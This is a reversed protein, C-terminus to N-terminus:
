DGFHDHSEGSAKPTELRPPADGMPQGMFKISCGSLSLLLILLALKM